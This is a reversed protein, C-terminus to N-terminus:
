KGEDPRSLGTVEISKVKFDKVAGAVDPVDMDDVHGDFTVMYFFPAKAAGVGVMDPGSMGISDFIFGEKELEAGTKGVLADVESKGPMVYVEQKKIVVPALVEKKKDMDGGPVADLAADIEPTMDCWARIYQTGDSATYILEKSDYEWESSEDFAAILDGLTAFEKVAASSTTPSSTSASTNTQASSASANSNAASSSTSTNNGSCGALAAMGLVAAFAVAAITTTKKMHTNGKAENGTGNRGADTRQALAPM